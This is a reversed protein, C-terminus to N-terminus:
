LHRSIRNALDQLVANTGAHFRSSQSESKLTNRLDTLGSRTPLVTKGQQLESLVLSGAYGIIRLGTLDADTLTLSPHSPYPGSINFGALHM